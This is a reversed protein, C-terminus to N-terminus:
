LFTDGSRADRLVPGPDSSELLVRLGPGGSASANEAQAPPLGTVLAPKAFRTITPIAALAVSIKEEGIKPKRERIQRSLRVADV